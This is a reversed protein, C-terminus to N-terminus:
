DNRLGRGNAALPRGLVRGALEAALLRASEELQRAADNFEQEIEARVQELQNRSQARMEEIMAATEAEVRRRENDRHGLAERRVAALQEERQEVASREEQLLRATRENLDKLRREREGLLKLFPGFFLWGFIFWFLLFSVILAVFIGWDPPIHM